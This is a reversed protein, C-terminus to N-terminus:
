IQILISNNRIDSERIFFNNQFKVNEVGSHSVKQATPLFNMLKEAINFQMQYINM